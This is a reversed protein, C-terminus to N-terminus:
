NPETITIRRNPEVSSVTQVAGSPWQVVIEDVIGADGLGFHPAIMPHGMFSRGSAVERVQTLGGARVKIRAGIGDRNSETGVTEVVLWSRGYDCRNRYLTTEGGLNGVFLDLCGDNEIDLYGLGRGVGPDDAGSVM